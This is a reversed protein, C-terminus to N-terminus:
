STLDGAAIWENTGIKHLTAVAYQGALKLGNRSRITVGSGPNITTQGAGYQEINIVTDTPFAVSSNPPVTLNHASAVNMRVTKGADGLVLTYASTQVNSPSITVSITPNGSAGDGNTVTVGTGAEIERSDYTGAGTRTMLGNSSFDGDMVAGAAAVNTADTVDAGSEIGDLKQIVANLETAGLGFRVEANGSLNLKSTGATGGVKSVVVTDRSFTPPSGTNYTGTGIEFDAGDLIIYAIPADADQAGAEAPTLFADSVADGVNVTGTGTTATKFAVRDFTLAM